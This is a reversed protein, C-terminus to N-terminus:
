REGKEKQASHIAQALDEFNLEPVYTKIVDCKDLDNWQFIRILNLIEEVNLVNETRCYEIDNDNIKDVCWCVDELDIFDDEDPIEGIQLYIKDPINKLKEQEEKMNVGDKGKASRANFKYEEM